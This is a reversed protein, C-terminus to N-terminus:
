RPPIPPCPRRAWWKRGPETLIGFMDTYGGKALYKDLLDWEADATYDARVAGTHDIPTADVIGLRLADPERRLSWWIDLGYGMRIDDPIPFVREQAYPSFVVLPGTEVFGTDRAVTFRKMRNFGHSTNSMRAHAPQAIDLGFQHVLGFFQSASSRTFVVDDDFLVLDAGPTPPHADILDQHIRSRAGPGSSRTLHALADTVEDLAHLHIRSGEPFTALLELVTDTNRARYVCYGDVPDASPAAAVADATLALSLRDLIPSEDYVLRRAQTALGAAAARALERAGM